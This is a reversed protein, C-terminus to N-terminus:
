LAEEAAQRVDGHSGGTSSETAAMVAGEVIAANCIAVKERRAEELMEVAMETSTSVVPIDDCSQPPEIGATATRRM